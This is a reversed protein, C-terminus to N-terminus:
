TKEHGREFGGIKKWENEVFMIAHRTAFHEYIVANQEFRWQMFINLDILSILNDM